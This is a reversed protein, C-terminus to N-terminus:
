LPAERLLVDFCTLFRRYSAEIVPGTINNSGVVYLRSEQRERFAKQKVAIEGDPASIEGWYPLITAAMDADADYHWRIHFMPKTLWEDAYDEILYDLFRLAPDSPIVSRGSYDAELRRIIPTSDVLAECEGEQNTLYVVPLLSVKPEPLGPLPSNGQQVYRYPIHRFRLLSLMKRTYPSGPVGKIILM